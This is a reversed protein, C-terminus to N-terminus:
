ICIKHLENISNEMTCDEKIIAFIDDIYRFWHVKINNFKRRTIEELKRLKIEALIRSVLSEM